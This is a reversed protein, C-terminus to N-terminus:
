CNANFNDYCILVQCKHQYPVSKRVLLCPQIKFLIARYNVFFVINLLFFYLVIVLVIVSIFVVSFVATFGCLFRQMCPNQTPEDEMPVVM